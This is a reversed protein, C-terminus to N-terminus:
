VRAPDVSGDDALVDDLQLGGAWVDSGDILRSSALREFEARHYGEVQSLLRDREAETDRLQRRYKAAERDTKPEDPDDTNSGTEDTLADADDAPEHGAGLDESDPAASDTEADGSQAAADESDTAPDTNLTM